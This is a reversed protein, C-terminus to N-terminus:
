DLEMTKYDIKGNTLLPFTQWYRFAEPHMYSPLMEAIRDALRDSNPSREQTEIEARIYPVVADVLHVHVRVTNEQAALIAAEIESPDARFGRIKFMRSMRGRFFYQGDIREFLDGTRYYRLASERDEWFAASTREDDGYYGIMQQGGGILLHGTGDAGDDVGELRFSVGPFPVGIALDSDADVSDPIRQLACAVVCETPGYGNYLRVHPYRDRFRAVAAPNPKDGGMWITQLSPLDIDRYASFRSTLLDIVNPTCSLDTIHSEALAFLLDNPAKMGPFLQCWGGTIWPGFIEMLVPDFHLPFFSLFRTADSYGVAAIANILFLALARRSVLVGKPTGTSGSTYILYAPADDDILARVVTNSDSAAYPAMLAIARDDLPGDRHRRADYLARPTCDNLIKQLRAKPAHEDLPAWVIGSLVCAYILAVSRLDKPGCIAVVDGAEVGREHLVAQWSAVAGLFEGRSCAAAGDAFAPANDDACATFLFENLRM